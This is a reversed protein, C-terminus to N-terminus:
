EGKNALLKRLVPFKVDDGDDSSLNPVDTQDEDLSAEHKDKVPKATVSAVLVSKYAEFSEEAMTKFSEYLKTYVDEDKTPLKAGASVLEAMRSDALEKSALELKFNEFEQTVEEKATNVEALQNEFQEKAEVLSTQLVELEAEKASLLEETAKLNKALKDSELSKAVASEIYADLEKQTEFVITNEVKKMGDEESKEDPNDSGVELGVAEVDAPREVVGAGAFTIDKFVANAKYTKLHECYDARKSFEKNCMDCETSGVWVEMSFFLQNKSFREAIEKTHAPYLKSYIFGSVEIHADEENTAAVLKSETIVGIIPEDHSWNIPKFVPTLEAKALEDETFTHKNKNTNAHVLKFKVPLLDIDTGKLDSSAKLLDIEQKDEIIQAQCVINFKEGSFDKVDNKYNKASELLCDFVNAKEKEYVYIIKLGDSITIVDDQKSFTVSTDDEFSSGIVIYDEDVLFEKIDSFKYKGNSTEIM